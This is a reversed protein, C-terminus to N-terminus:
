GGPSVHWPEGKVTRKLGFQEIENQLFESVLPATSNNFDVAYGGEHNSCGPNATETGGCSHSCGGNSRCSHRSFLSQQHEFSRFSSAASLSIGREEARAALAAYAGSVRSNVLIAGNGGDIGFGGVSEGSNSKISDIACLRVKLTKGKLHGEYVGVDRTRPDCSISESEQDLPLIPQDSAGSMQGSGGCNDMNSYSGSISQSGFFKNLEDFNMIPTLDTFTYGFRTNVFYDIKRHVIATYGVRGYAAEITVIDDGNVALVIGTHGCLDSGCYTVGSTVSFISFPKPTNSEPLNHEMAMKHAMSRAGSDITWRTAVKGVSTFRQIFWASLSVCNWKGYSSPLHWESSSVEDSKYHDAMQQAQAESLGSGSYSGGTTSCEQCVGMGDSNNAFKSASPNRALAKEVYKWIPGPDIHTDPAPSHMHGVVGKVNNNFEERNKQRIASTNSYNIDWDMSTNLPIGTEQSIAILLLALYDWEEDGFNQLYYNKDPIFSPTSFGVIEIQVSSADAASTALARDTIPLNQIVQKKKLDIIFHAPFKHGVPYAAFGITKGETSHLVIKNPKGDSTGYGPKVTESLRLNSVDEKELGPMGDTLWGQQWTFGASEGGGSAAVSVSTVTGAGGGQLYQQYYKRANDRRKAAAQYVSTRTLTKVGPDEIPQPMPSGVAREVVVLFLDSYAAAGDAGTKNTPVDLKETFKSHNFNYGYQPDMLYDIEAKIAEEALDASVTQGWHNGFKGTIFSIFGPDNSQYLGKHSGNGIFPNFSSELELNGVIAAIVEPTFNYQAAYKEAIYNWTVVALGDGSLLGAGGTCVKPMANKIADVWADFHGVPHIQTPDNAFTEENVVAAWDAVFVQESHESKVEELAANFGSYDAGKGTKANVFVIKVDSGAIELVKEIKQKAAPQSMGAMDNTGLAFVLVSRLSGSKKISELIQIGTPNSDNSGDFRKSVMINSGANDISSGLDVGPYASTILDKAGVSYSDGIWTIQDGSVATCSGTRATTVECESPDYYLINGQTFDELVEEDLKAFASNTTSFIGCGLGFALLMLLGVLAVRKGLFLRNMM